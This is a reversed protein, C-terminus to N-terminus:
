RIFYISRTANGSWHCWVGCHHWPSRQLLQFHHHSVKGTWCYGVSHSFCILSSLLVFFFFFFFPLIYEASCSCNIIMVRGSHVAMYRIAAKALFEKLFSIFASSVNGGSKNSRSLSVCLKSQLWCVFFICVVIKCYLSCYQLSVVQIDTSLTQHLWCRLAQVSRSLCLFPWSCGLSLTIMVWLRFSLLKAMWNLPASRSTWESPASIARQTRTM